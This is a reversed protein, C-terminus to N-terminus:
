SAPMNANDSKSVPLTFWFTSGKGLTSTVSITGGMKEVLGKCIALGLGVGKDFPNLKTFRKFILDIKDEPIGEGTDEVFFRVTTNENIYGFQIYGQTTHKMANNLLNSFIQILRLPDTFISINESDKLILKVDKPMRLSITKHLDKMIPLLAVNVNSFKMSNTEIRSFDLVDGILRELLDNNQLIIDAYEQRSKQDDEEILIQSFGVIANLPTRIEHNMNDLFITKMRDAEEAKMRAKKSEISSRRFLWVAVGMILCILIMLGVGYKLMSMQFHDHSAEMELRQNTMELNDFDRQSRFSALYKYFESSSLSDKLAAYNKYGILAEDKQNTKYLIDNKINLVVMYKQMEERKQYSDMLIKSLPLAKTYNKCLYEYEFKLLNIDDNEEVLNHQEILKESLTIYHAMETANHNKYAANSKNNYYLVEMVEITYTDDLRKIGKAKCEKIYDYLINVYYNHKEGDTNNLLQRLLYIRRKMPVNRKYMGQMIEEYLKVAEAKLGSFLYFYALCQNALDQGEVYKLKNSLIKLNQIEMLVSETNGRDILSIINWSKIRCVEENRGYSLLIPAAKNIFYRMSDWDEDYYYYCYLYYSEGIFWKSNLHRSEDYLLDIYEKSNARSLHGHGWQDLIRLRSSDPLNTLVKILSDKNFSSDARTNANCFLLLSIMFLIKSVGRM